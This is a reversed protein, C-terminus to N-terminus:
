IGKGNMKLKENIERWTILRINKDFIIKRSEDGTFFNFDDQRWVSNYAKHGTTLLKMEENDLAPHVLLCNLGPHLTQLLDRYYPALGKKALRPTAIYLKNVPIEDDSIFDRVDYRFWKEIKERNLLVPLGYMRGLQIYIKVFDPNLMGTFMHCDLHTPRLGFALSKEIQAQLEQEVETLIAKTGLEESTEFFFGDSNTLSPVNNGLVPQWQHGAWESTLTLHIGIDCQPHLKAYEVAEFSFPCPIMISASNITGIEMARSCALNTAHSLGMDDAHVIFLKTKPPYGLRKLTKNVSDLQFLNRIFSM